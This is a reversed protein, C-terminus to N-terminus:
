DSRLIADSDDSIMESKIPLVWHETDNEARLAGDKVWWDDGLKWVDDSLKGNSQAVAYSLADHLADYYEWLTDWEYRSVWEEWNEYSDREKESFSELRTIEEQLLSMGKKSPPVLFNVVVEGTNEDGDKWDLDFKVRAFDILWRRPYPEVFGYMLFMEPTGVWDFFDQCVNCHNYSNYIQDGAKIPKTTVVEHGTEEIRQSKYYDHKHRINYLGNHHNIM